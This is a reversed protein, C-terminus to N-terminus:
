QDRPKPKELGFYAKVQNLQLAASVKGLEAAYGLLTITEKGGDKIITFSAVNALRVSGGDDARVRSPVLANDDYGMQARLDDAVKKNVVQFYPQLKGDRESLLSVTDGQITFKASIRVNGFRLGDPHSTDPIIWPSPDEPAQAFCCISLLLLILAKMAASLIASPSPSDLWTVAEKLPWGVPAFQETKRQLAIQAEVDGPHHRPNRCLPRHRVHFSLYRM